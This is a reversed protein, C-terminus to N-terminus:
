FNNNRESDACARQRSLGTLRNAKLVVYQQTDGRPLLKLRNDGQGQPNYFGDTLCIFMGDNIEDSPDDELEGSGSSNATSNLIRGSPNFVVYRTISMNEGSTEKDSINKKPNAVLLLDRANVELKKAFMPRFDNEDKGILVGDPLRIWSSGPVWMVFTFSSGVGRTVIAARCCANYYRTLGVSGSPVVAKSEIDELEDMQPFVLAVYCRNNIAYSRAIALQGAVDTAGQSLLKGKSMSSFSPLAVGILIGMLVMVMLLEMLTFHRYQQLIKSKETRKM